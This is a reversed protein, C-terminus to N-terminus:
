EKKAEKAKNTLGRYSWGSFQTSTPLPSFRRRGGLLLLECAPHRSQSRFVVEISMLTSETILLVHSIEEQADTGAPSADEPQFHLHESYEPQDCTGGSM